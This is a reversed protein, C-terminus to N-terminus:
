PTKLSFPVAGPSLEITYPRQLLGLGSCLKSYREQLTHISVGDVRTVLALKTIAPRGLLPSHLSKVIYVDELIHKDGKLLLMNSVGIVSLPSCGPGLLPKTVRQLAPKNGEKFIKHFVHDPMVTVDAGTDIKFQVECDKIKIDILWPDGGAVVTGLFIGPDQEQIENVKRSSACVKQYHGRKGCAHCLVTNAPCHAKPHFPSKGCKHCRSQSQKFKDKAGHASKFRPRSQFSKSKSIFRDVSDPTKANICEGRLNSQQQKVAETQRAMDISKELTLDKVLQMRESLRLDNLGVVLRDRILEDHLPGYKCHETLSYLATM